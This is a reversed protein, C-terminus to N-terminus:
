EYKEKGEVINKIKKVLEEGRLNTTILKGTPNILLTHPVATVGYMSVYSSKWGKLDSIHYWDTHTLGNQQICNKWAAENNDLSFSLIAFKKSVTALELAQKLFPFEKRCPACWSAWFDVLVYRGKLDTLSLEKGDPTTAKLEPVPNGSKMNQAITLNNLEQYIPHSQLSKPFVKLLHREMMKSNFLNLLHAKTLYLAVPKDTHELIVELAILKARMSNSFFLARQYAYFDKENNRINEPLTEKLSKMRKSGKQFEADTKQALEAMVDNNPTGSVVASAPYAAKFPSIVINGKELFIPINGNDFGTIFYMENVQPVKGTFTFKHKKIDTSDIQIYNGDELKTLYIKKITQNDRFLSDNSLTGTIKYQDQALVSGYLLCFAVSCLLKTKMSETKISVFEM